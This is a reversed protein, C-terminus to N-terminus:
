QDIYNNDISDHQKEIFFFLTQATVFIDVFEPNYIVQDSQM